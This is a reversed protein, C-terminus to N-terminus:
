ELDNDGIHQSLVAINFPFLRADMVGHRVAPDSTMIDRAIGKSEAQLIVIGFTSEDATQTRGALLVVGDRALQQLYEFHQKLIEAESESPGATLMALRRPKVRYIYQQLDM